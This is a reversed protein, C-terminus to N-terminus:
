AKVEEGNRHPQSFNLPQIPQKRLILFITSLVIHPVNQIVETHNWQSEDEM